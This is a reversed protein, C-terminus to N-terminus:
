ASGPLQFLRGLLQDETRLTSASLQYARQARILDVMSAALDVNSGELLGSEVLGPPVAGGTGAGAVPQGDYTGDAAPTIPGNLQVLALQGVTRGAAQVRGEGDVGVQGATTGAPLQVPKGDSGLVPLGDPTVLRGDADVELALTRVYGTSGDRREVAFWWGPQGLALDLSRGTAVAPGQRDVAGETLFATGYSVNGLYAAVLGDQSRTLPPELYSAFSDAIRRYGPTNLNALDGALADLWEQQAVMGSGAM